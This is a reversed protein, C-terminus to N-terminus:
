VSFQPEFRASNRLFVINWLLRPLFHELHELDFVTKPPVMRALADWILLHFYRGDPHGWLVRYSTATWTELEHVCQGMPKWIGLWIGGWTKQDMPILWMKWWKEMSFIHFSWCRGLCMTNISACVPMLPRSIWSRCAGCSGAVSIPHMGPPGPSFSTEVGNQFASSM